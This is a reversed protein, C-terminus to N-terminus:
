IIDFGTEDYPDQPEVIEKNTKSKYIPFDDGRLKLFNMLESEKTSASQKLENRLYNVVNLGEATSFEGSLSSVGKNSIRFTVFPITIDIARYAVIMQIIEVLEEEDSNLTQNNYKELLDDFFEKGLIPRIYDVAAVRINPAIDDFDVNQSVQTRTKIFNETVFYNIM